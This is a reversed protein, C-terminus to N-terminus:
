RERVMQAQAGAGKTAGKAATTSTKAAAQQSEYAQLRTFAPKFQALQETNMTCNVQGEPTVQLLVQQSTRDTVALTGNPDRDFKFNGQDPTFTDRGRLMQQTVWAARTGAPSAEGLTALMAKPDSHCLVSAMDNTQLREGVTLLDQKLEPPLKDEVLHLDQGVQEFVLLPQGEPTTVQYTTGMAETQRFV